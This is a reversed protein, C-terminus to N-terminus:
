RREAPGSPGSPPIERVEAGPPLDILHLKPNAGFLDAFDAVDCLEEALPEPLEVFEARVLLWSDPGTDTDFGVFRISRPPCNCWTERNVHGVHALFARNAQDRTILAYFKM